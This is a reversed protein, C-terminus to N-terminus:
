ELDRPRSLTGIKQYEALMGLAGCPIHVQTKCSFYLSYLDNQVFMLILILKLQILIITVTQERSNVASYIFLM